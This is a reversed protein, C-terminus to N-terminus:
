RNWVRNKKGYLNGNIKQSKGNRFTKAMRIIYWYIRGLTRMLERICCKERFDLLLASFTFNLFDNFKGNFKKGWIKPFNLDAYFGNKGICIYVQRIDISEDEFNRWSEWVDSKIYAPMIVRNLSFFQKKQM